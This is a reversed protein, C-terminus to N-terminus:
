AEMRALSGEWRQKVRRVRLLRTLYRSPREGEELGQWRLRVVM